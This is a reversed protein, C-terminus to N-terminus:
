KFSCLAWKKELMLNDYCLKVVYLFFDREREKEISGAWICVVCGYLSIESLFCLYILDEATNLLNWQAFACVCVGM